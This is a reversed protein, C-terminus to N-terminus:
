NQEMQVSASLPMYELSFLSVEECVEVEDDENKRVQKSSNKAVWIVNHYNNLVIVSGLDINKTKEKRRKSAKAKVANEM